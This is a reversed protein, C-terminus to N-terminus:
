TIGHTFTLGRTSGQSWHARYALAIRYAMQGRPSITPNVSKGRKWLAEYKLGCVAFYDDFLTELHKLYGSLTPGKIRLDAAIERPIFIRTGKGECAEGIKALVKVQKDYKRIRDKEGMFQVFTAPMASEPSSIQVHSPKEASGVLM